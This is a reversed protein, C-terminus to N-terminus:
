ETCTTSSLAPSLANVLDPRVKATLAPWGMACFLALRARALHAAHPLYALSNADPTQARDSILQAFELLLGVDALLGCCAEWGCRILCAM